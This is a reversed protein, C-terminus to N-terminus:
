ALLSLKLSAPSPFSFFDWGLDSWVILISYIHFSQIFLSNVFESQLFVLLLILFTLREMPVIDKAKVKTSGTIQIFIM